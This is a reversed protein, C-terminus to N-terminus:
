ATGAPPLEIAAIATAVAHVFGRGYGSYDDLLRVIFTDGHWIIQDPHTVNGLSDTSAGQLRFPTTLSITKEQTESEPLRKLDDPPSAVVVAQAALSTQTVQGRGYQDVAVARRLVTIQDYFTFDFADNVDHIAAM